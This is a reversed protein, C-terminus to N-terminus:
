SPSSSPYIKIDQCPIVQFCFIPRQLIDVCLSIFVLIIRQGSWLIDKLIFKFFMYFSRLLIIIEKDSMPECVFYLWCLWILTPKFFCIETMKFAGVWTWKGKCNYLDLHNLILMMNWKLIVGWCVIFLVQMSGIDLYLFLVIVKNPLHGLM